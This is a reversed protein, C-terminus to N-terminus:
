QRAGGPEWNAAFTSARACRRSPKDTRSPVYSAAPLFRRTPFSAPLFDVGALQITWSQRSEERTSQNRGQLPALRLM